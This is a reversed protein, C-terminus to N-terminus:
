RGDCVIRPRGEYTALAFVLTDVEAAVARPADWALRGSRITTTAGHKAISALTEGKADKLVITWSGALCRCHVREISASAVPQGVAIGSAELASVLPHLAEGGLRVQWAAPFCAAPEKPAPIRDARAPSAVAFSGVTLALALVALAARKM